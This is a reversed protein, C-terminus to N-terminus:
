SILFDKLKRENKPTRLAALGKNELQRIREKTVHMEDAIEQLTKPENGDLGYREIIVRRAKEHKISLVSEQMVRKLETMVCLDEPSPDDSIISDKLTFSDGEGYYMEWDLSLVDQESMEIDHLREVSTGLMKAIYADDPETGHQRKYEDKLVNRKYILDVCYEPIAFSQNPQRTMRLIARKISPAAYTSLKFGYRYDFRDVAKMLGITGQQILDELDYGMNMYQKAIHIVLRINHNILSQRAEMDGESMKIALAKEEAATLVDYQDLNSILMSISDLCVTDEIDLFDIEDDASIDQTYKTIDFNEYNNMIKHNTPLSEWCEQIRGFAHM